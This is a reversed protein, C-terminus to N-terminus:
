RAPAEFTANRLFGAPMQLASTGGFQKHAALLEDLRPDRIMVQPENGAVAVGQDAPLAQSPVGLPGAVEVPQIRAPAAAVGADAAAEPAGPVLAIQPGSTPLAGPGGPAAILNWGIAAVAAMSAFGAIMKWRFTPANAAMTVAPVAALAGSAAVAVPTVALREVSAYAGAAQAATVHGAASALSPRAQSPEQGLRAQFGALFAADRSCDALDAARLADGILHYCHWTAAADENRQVSEVAQAFAAGRLQGDALASLMEHDCAKHVKNM